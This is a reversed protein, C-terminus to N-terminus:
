SIRLFFIHSQFIECYLLNSVNITFFIIIIPVVEEQAFEESLNQPIINQSM